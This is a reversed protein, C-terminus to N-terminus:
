HGHWFRNDIDIVIDTDADIVIDEGIAIDIDTVIDLDTSTAIDTGTGTDIAVDSVNHTGIGTDTDDTIVMGVDIVKTRAVTGIFLNIDIDM